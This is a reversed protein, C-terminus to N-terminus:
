PKIQLETDSTICFLMSSTTFVVKEPRKMWSGASNCFLIIHLHKCSKREGDGQKQPVQGNIHESAKMMWGQLRESDEPIFPCHSDHRMTNKQEEAAPVPRSQSILQGNGTVSRQERTRCVQLKTNEFKSLSSIKCM